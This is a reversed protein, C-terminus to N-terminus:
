RPGPFWMRILNEGILIRDGSAVAAERIPNGNLLTGNTSGLDLLTWDGSPDRVFAAHESSVSPDDLAIHNGPHRGVTVHALDLPELVGKHPGDVFELVALAGEPFAAIAEAPTEDRVAAEERLAQTPQTPTNGPGLSDPHPPESWDADYSPGLM